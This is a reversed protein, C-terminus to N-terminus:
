LLGIAAATTIGGACLGMVNVTPQGSIEKMVAIAQIVSEAYTELNWERDSPTPNRWSVAFVTIGAALLEQFLSRDPTLDGLYFRNVQSFVYLFPREHTQAVTPVYQLLEFVESRYVVAGDSAAVDKGIVFANRDAVAPYGHNHRLDDLFNRIGNVVSEGKSDFLMKLATPNSYLNNVPALMDKLIGLLFRARKEDMDNLESEDLWRDLSNGVALYYQGIRKYFPNDNWAPDSFRRDTSLDLSSFGLMIATTESMLHQWVNALVSPHRTMQDILDSLAQLIEERDIGLALNLAVGQSKRDSLEEVSDVM